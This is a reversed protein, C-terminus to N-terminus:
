IRKKTKPKRPKFSYLRQDIIEFAVYSTHIGLTDFNMKM